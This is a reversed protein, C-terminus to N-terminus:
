YQIYENIQVQQLVRSHFEIIHFQSFQVSIQRGPFSRLSILSVQLLLTKNTPKVQQEDDEVVINTQAQEARM